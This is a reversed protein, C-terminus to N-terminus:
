TASEKEPRVLFPRRGPETRTYLSAIADAMETLDARELESILNRYAEAVLPWETKTSGKSRKWTIKWGAGILGTAEGMRQKILLEASDKRQYAALAEAKAELYDRVAVELSEDAIMEAGDGRYARNISEKTESFPGGDKLRRMFDEAILLMGAFDDPRADIDYCDLQQGYRLVAVHGAKRGMVGMQWQVQAEVDRPLGDDWRKGSSTKTEVLTGDRREFDPSAMAWPVQPHTFLEDRRTLPHGHEVEDEAAVVSEMATGLRLRRMTQPDHEEEEGTLKQRAVDGESRFPSLGLIAPIDTGTVGLRRAALWEPTRQKIM